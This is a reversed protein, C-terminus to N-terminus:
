TAPLTKAMDLHMKVTPNYKQVVSKLNTLKGSKIYDTFLAYTETHSLVNANKYAADFAAGKLAGLKVLLTRQAANVDTPPQLSPDDKQLAAKVSNGLATHDKIMQQAYAKVKANTSNKLALQAAQIEFTNGQGAATVFATDLKTATGAGGATSTGSMSTGNMMSSGSMSTGGMSSGNMMSGGSMSTGGMSSGNMMSTGNMMSSGTMSTGGTSPASTGTTSTGSQALAFTTTLGILVISLRHM